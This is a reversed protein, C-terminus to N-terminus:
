AEKAESVVFQAAKTVALDDMMQKKAKENDGLMEKVKDAEMNYVEAMSAIEKEYDEETYVNKYFEDYYEFVMRKMKVTKALSANQSVLSGETKVYYYVPIKLAYITHTHRVYELNFM